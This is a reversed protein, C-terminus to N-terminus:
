RSGILSASPSRAITRRRPNHALRASQLLEQNLQQVIQAERSQEQASPAVGSAREASQVQSETPQHDFGGWINGIRAPTENPSCAERALAAGAPFILTCLLPIAAALVAPRPLHRPRMRSTRREGPDPRSVAFGQGIAAGLDSRNAQASGFLGFRM